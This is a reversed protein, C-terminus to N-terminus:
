RTARSVLARFRPDRLLALTDGGQLSVRLAPDDRLAAFAPDSRIATLRPGIESLAAALELEFLRAQGAAEPSVAGITALRTRFARDNVLARAAPRALATAVAGREVDRWFGADRQLEVSRPDAVVGRLAALAEGPRAALQVAMRGGPARADVVADAAAGLVRTSLAPLSASSLDPLEPRIGSTRAGEALGGLWLMPLALLAGRLAGLVAGLGQSLPSPTEARERAARTLLRMSLQVGLLGASSAGLTAALPSIGLERALAPGFAYGAGLAGAYALPLGLLRLAAVGPCARAGAWALWAILALMLADLWM